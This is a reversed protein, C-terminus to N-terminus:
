IMRWGGNIQLCEGSIYTAGSGCLFAVAEGIEEPEANRRLPIQNLTAQQTVDRLAKLSATNTRGPAVANIRVGKPGFEDAAQRVLGLVAAKSAAYHASVDRINTIGAISSVVVISGTGARVMQPLVARMGYIVGFLNTELTERWVEDEAELFALPRGNRKPSIGANCVL